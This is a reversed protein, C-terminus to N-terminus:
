DDDGRLVFLLTEDLRYECLGEYPCFIGELYMHLINSILYTKGVVGDLLTLLSNDYQERKRKIILM